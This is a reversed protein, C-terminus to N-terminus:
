HPAHNEYTIIISDNLKSVVTHIDKKYRTKIVFHHHDDRQVSGRLFLTGGWDNIVYAFMSVCRVNVLVAEDRNNKIMIPFEPSGEQYVVRGLYSGNIKVILIKFPYKKMTNMM